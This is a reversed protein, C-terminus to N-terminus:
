FHYIVLTDRFNLETIKKPKPHDDKSYDSGHEQQVSNSDDQSFVDSNSEDNSSYPM